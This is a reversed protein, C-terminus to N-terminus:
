KQMIVTQIGNGNTKASLVTWGKFGYVSGYLEFPKKRSDFYDWTTESFRRCDFPDQFAVSYKVNPVIVTMKSGGKLVRHCENMAFVLQENLLIQELVGSIHIEDCSDNKFPLMDERIDLYHEAKVEKSIDINQWGERYDRGCGINLKM